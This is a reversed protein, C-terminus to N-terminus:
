HVVYLHQRVFTALRNSVAMYAEHADVEANRQLAFQRAADRGVPLSLMQMQLETKKASSILQELAASCTQRLLDFEQEDTMAPLGRLLIKAGDAPSCDHPAASYLNGGDTKVPSYCYVAFIPNPIGHFLELWHIARRHPALRRPAIPRREEQHDSVAAAPARNAFFVGPEKRPL